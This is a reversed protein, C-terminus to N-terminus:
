QEESAPDEQPEPQRRGYFDEDDEEVDISKNKPSTEAWTVIGHEAEPLGNQTPLFELPELTEESSVRGAASKRGGRGVDESGEEEDEAGVDLGDDFSIINTIKKKRRREKRLGSDLLTFPASCPPKLHAM